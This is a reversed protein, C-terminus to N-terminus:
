HEDHFLQGVDLDHLAEDYKARREWIGSCHCSWDIADIILHTDSCGRVHNTEYGANASSGIDESYRAAETQYTVPCMTTSIAIISKVVVPTCPSAPCDGLLICTINTESKHSSKFFPVPSIM